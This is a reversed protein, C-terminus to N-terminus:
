IRKLLRTNAIYLAALLTLISLSYLLTDMPKEHDVIILRVIATIGIYIFYRLPFHFKSEFYKAILAIFEFHLFWIIIAEIIEYSDPRPRSQLLITILLWTERALFALLIVALILLMTALLHKMGKALKKANIRKILRRM